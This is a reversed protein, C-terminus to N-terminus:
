LASPTGTAAPTNYGTNPHSSLGIIALAAMVNLETETIAFASRNRLTTSQHHHPTRCGKQKHGQDTRRDDAREAIEGAHAVLMMRRSRCGGMRAVLLVRGVVPGNHGPSGFTQAVILNLGNRCRHGLRSWQLRCGCCHHQGRRERCILGVEGNQRPVSRRARRGKDTLRCGQADSRGSKV